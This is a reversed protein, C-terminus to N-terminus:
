RRRVDSSKSGDPYTMVAVERILKSTWWNTEVDLEAMTQGEKLTPRVKAFQNWYDVRRRKYPWRKLPDKCERSGEIIADRLNKLGELQTPTVGSM